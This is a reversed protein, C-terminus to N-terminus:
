DGTFGSDFFIQVNSGVGRLKLSFQFHVSQVSGGSLDRRSCPVMSHLNPIGHTPDCGWSPMVRHQSEWTSVANLVVTLMIGHISCLRRHHSEPCMLLEGVCGNPRRGPPSTRVIKQTPGDFGEYNLWKHSNFPPRKRPALVNPDIGKTAVPKSDWLLLLGFVNEPCLDELNLVKESEPHALSSEANPKESQTWTHQFHWTCWSDEITGIPFDIQFAHICTAYRRVSDVDTGPRSAQCSHTTIGHKVYLVSQKNIRHPGRIQISICNYM